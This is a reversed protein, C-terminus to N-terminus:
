HPAPTLTLLPITVLSISSLFHLASPSQHSVLHCGSSLPVRFVVTLLDTNPQKSKPHQASMHIPRISIKSKKQLCGEPPLPPPHLPEVKEVPIAGTDIVVVSTIRAGSVRISSQPFTHVSFKGPCLPFFGIIRVM